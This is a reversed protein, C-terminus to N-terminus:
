VRERCSARGIESPDSSWGSGWAVLYAKDAGTVVGPTNGHFSLQASRVPKHAAAHAQSALRMTVIPRMVEPARGGALAPGVIALALGIGIGFALLRRRSTM